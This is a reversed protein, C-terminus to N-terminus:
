KRSYKIQWNLTWTKGDDNSSEWNWTFSKKTIESFVMRQIIEKGLKNIVRRSLIMNEGNMGGTFDMYSGQNDVWTQEWINKTTNYVSYSKGIFSNDGTSFNEEVVCGGLIKSITNSGTQVNGESDKWEAKWEGIWFDLQSAEPTSCPSNTQAKSISYSLGFAALFLLVLSVKYQIEM